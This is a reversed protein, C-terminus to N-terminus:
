QVMTSPYCSETCSKFFRCTRAEGYFTEKKEKSLERTVGHPQHWICWPQRGSYPTPAEGMEALDLLASGCIAWALREPKTSLTSVSKGLLRRGQSFEDHPRSSGPIGILTQDLLFLRLGGKPSPKLERPVLIKWSEQLWAPERLWPEWVIAWPWVSDGPCVSRFDAPVTLRISSELARFGRSRVGSCPILADKGWPM